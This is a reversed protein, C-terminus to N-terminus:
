KCIERGTQQKIQDAFPQLDIEEGCAACQLKKTPDFRVFGQRKLDAETQPSLSLRAYTNQLTNCKGCPVQIRLFDETPTIAQQVPQQAQLDQKFLVQDATAYIKCRNTSGFYLECVVKIRYVIEALEPYKADLNQIQLGIDELDQIKLSRGHTKWRSHKVLEDVIVHARAAKDGATVLRKRGTTEDWDKFKYKPLWEQVLVKAFDRADKVLGIEGPSIQAIMLADFSNLNGAEADAMKQEVWEMYSDASITSRGIPMQADVPGLSGTETMFIDDGSLALLTGASKAEGTVVFYVEKFHSRLFRQIEEVTEGSGGHTEIYFDLKEVDKKDSLMRHIWYYDHQELSTLYSPKDIAIDYVFLYTNRSENYNLILRKLEALYFEPPKDVYEKLFDM